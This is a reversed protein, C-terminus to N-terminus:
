YRPIYWISDRTRNRDIKGNEDLIIDTKLNGDNDHASFYNTVVRAPIGLCRLVTVLYFFFFQYVNPSDSKKKLRQKLHVELTLLRVPTSSQLTSGASLMASRCRAAPTAWCSTPAAQGPHPRWESPTTAVGTVLWCVTTTVPTSSLIVSRM